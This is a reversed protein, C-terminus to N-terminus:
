VAVSDFMTATATDYLTKICPHFVADRQEPTTAFPNNHAGAALPMERNIRAIVPDLPFHACEAYNAMSEHIARESAAVEGVVLDAIAKRRSESPDHYEADAAEQLTTLRKVFIDKLAQFGETDLFGHRNREITLALLMFSIKIAAAQRRHPTGKDEAAGPGATAVVFRSFDATMADLAPEFKNIEAARKRVPTLPVPRALHPEATAPPPPPPPVATVAAPAAQPTAVPKDSSLGLVVLAVVVIAGPLWPSNDMGAKAVQYILLLAVLAAGVLVAGRQLKTLQLKSM